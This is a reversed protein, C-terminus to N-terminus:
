KRRWIKPIPELNKAVFWLLMPRIIGMKLDAPHELGFDSVEIELNELADKILKKIEDQMIIKVRVELNERAVLRNM